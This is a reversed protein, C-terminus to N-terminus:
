SEESSHAHLTWPDTVISSSTAEVTIGEASLDEVLLAAARAVWPQETAWHAADVLAVGYDALAEAARHHKLDSTLLVDAGAAQALEALEGGSGGCVAVTAIRRAPDGGSRVGWSTSPLAAAAAAVFERLSIPEALDGVRGLGHATGPELPRVGSLGLTKALADNVGPDAVDANTHAVYLGVGATVLRHVLRGKPTTAAVSETGGLFLPHHTVLLQAGLAIAEDVVVEVPDVAVHVHSVSSDPDGCILGISDWEQAWAPDYRRELAAVVDAVRPM